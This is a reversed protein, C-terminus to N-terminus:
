SLKRLLAVLRVREAGDLPELTAESIRRARAVARCALELGQPTPALVATRRDM